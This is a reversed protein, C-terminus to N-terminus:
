LFDLACLYDYFAQQNHKSEGPFSRMLVSYAGHLKQSAAQVDPTLEGSLVSGQRAKALKLEFFSAHLVVADTILALAAASSAVKIRPVALLSRYRVVSQEVAGINRSRLAALGQVRIVTAQEAFDFIQRLAEKAAPEISSGGFSFVTRAHPIQAYAQEVTMTQAQIAFATCLLIAVLLQHIRSNLTILLSM